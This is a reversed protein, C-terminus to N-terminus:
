SLDSFLRLDKAQAVGDFADNQLLLCQALSSLILEAIKHTHTGNLEANAVLQPLMNNSILTVIRRTAAFTKSTKAAAFSAAFCSSRGVPPLKAVVVPFLRWVELKARLSLIAASAESRSGVM